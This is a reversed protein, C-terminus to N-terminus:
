FILRGAHIYIKDGVRLTRFANPKVILRLTGSNTRYVATYVVGIVYFGFVDQQGLLGEHVELCPLKLSGFANLRDRICM